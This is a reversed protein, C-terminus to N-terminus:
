TLVVHASTGLIINQRMTLIVLLYFTFVIVLVEVWVEHTVM